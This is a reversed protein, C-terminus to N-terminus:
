GSFALRRKEAEAEKVTSTWVDIYIIDVDQAAECSNSILQIRNGTLAAFEKRQNV